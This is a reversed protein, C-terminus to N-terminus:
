SFNNAKNCIKLFFDFFITKSVNPNKKCLLETDNIENIIKKLDYHKWINLQTKILPKEKWFIPPKFANLLSEINSYEHEKEKMNLLRQIKNNLIRLFYIYNLTNNYFESLNKKLQNKNGCLCENILNESKYEGSFNILSKIDDIEINKKNLAFATVKDIENKINNRDNNAKDILLNISEM